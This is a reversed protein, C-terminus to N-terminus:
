QGPPPYHPKANIPANTMCMSMRVVVVDVSQIERVQWEMTHREGYILILSIFYDVVIYYTNSVRIEIEVALM